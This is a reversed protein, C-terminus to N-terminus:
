KYKVVYQIKNPSYIKIRTHCICVSFQFSVKFAIFESYFIFFLFLKINEAIINWSNSRTLFDRVGREEKVLRDTNSGWLEEQFRKSILVVVSPTPPTTFPTPPPTYVQIHTTTSCCLEWLEACLYIMSEGWFIFLYVFEVINLELSITLLYVIM